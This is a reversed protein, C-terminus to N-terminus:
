KSGKVQLELMQVRDGIAALQIVQQNNAEAAKAVTDTFDLKVKVIEQMLALRSRRDDWCLFVVGVMMGIQLACIFLAAQLITEM